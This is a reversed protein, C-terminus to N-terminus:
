EGAGSLDLMQLGGPHVTVSADDGLATIKRIHEAIRLAGRHVATASNRQEPDLKPDSVLLESETVVSTLANNIEHRVAVALQGIAAAREARVVRGYYEHLQESLWGVSISLSGYAVYIPVTIRWDDPTLNFAIITQIVMFLLTGGILSAVAGRLGYHLSLLFAPVLTVLWVLEDSLGPDEPLVIQVLVPMIYAGATYLWFRTSLPPRHAVPKLTFRALPGRGTRDTETDFTTRKTANRFSGERARVAM